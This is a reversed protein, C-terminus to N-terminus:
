PARSRVALDNVRRDSRLLVRTIPVERWGLGRRSVFARSMDRTGPDAKAGLPYQSCNAREDGPHGLNSPASFRMGLAADEDLLPFSRVCSVFELLARSVIVLHDHQHRTDEDDASANVQKLLVGRSDISSPCTPELDDLV